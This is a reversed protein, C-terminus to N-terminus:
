GLINVWLWSRLAPGNRSPGPGTGPARCDGPSAPLKAAWRISWRASHPASLNGEPLNVYRVPFDM